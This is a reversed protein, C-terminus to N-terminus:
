FLLYFVRLEREAYEIHVLVIFYKQCIQLLSVTSYHLFAKILRIRQKFVKPTWSRNILYKQRSRRSCNYISSRIKSYAALFLFYSYSNVSLHKGSEAIGPCM